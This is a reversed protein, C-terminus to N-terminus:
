LNIIKVTGYLNSNDGCKKLYDEIGLIFSDLLNEINIRRHVETIINNSMSCGHADGSVCESDSICLEFRDIKIKNVDYNKM